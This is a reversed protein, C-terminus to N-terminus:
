DPSEDALWATLEAPLAVDGDPRRRSFVLREAHARVQRYGFLAFMQSVAVAVSPGAIYHDAREPHRSVGPLYPMLADFRLTRLAASVRLATRSVPRAIFYGDDGQGQYRPLMMLGTESVRVDGGRDRAVVQDRMVLQFNVFGPKMVFPEDDPRVVHRQRIECVAPMGANVAALRARHEALDPLDRADLSGAAVLMLLLASEHFDVTRPDDHQGGEVAVGVHGLDCLYGLMSGEIVEDLGLVVPIPLALALPRNRLVDAMLSFPTSPGSTSHLDIFRVPGRRMLPLFVALLERTEQDESTEVAGSALRAINQATWRRNLDRDVFRTGAALARRNGTVGVLEGRVAVGRERLRALVRSIAPLGAPENGHIAGVCVVTPGPRGSGLRGLVRPWAGPDPPDSPPASSSPTM